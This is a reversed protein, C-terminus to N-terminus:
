WTLTAKPPKTFTPAIGMTQLAFSMVRHFVPAAAVGGYYNHLPRDLVVECVLKPHDAPAMGVFTATYGAGGYGGHGNSRAATGTKGAVRYGPIEAAPATGESGVVSEMMDRLEKATKVSIVRHTPPPPAAVLHQNAGLTGQVINPTVRVGNNAITSYVSAIQIASVV